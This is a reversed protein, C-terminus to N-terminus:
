ICDLSSWIIWLHNAIGQYCILINYTWLVAFVLLFWVSSPLGCTFRVVDWFYIVTSLLYFVGTAFLNDNHVICKYLFQACVWKRIWRPFYKSKWIMTRGNKYYDTYNQQFDFWLLVLHKFSCSKIQYLHTKEILSLHLGFGNEDTLITKHGWKGISNLTKKEKQDYHFGM